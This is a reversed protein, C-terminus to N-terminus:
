ICTATVKRKQQKPTTLARELTWKELREALSAQGIGLSAAWDTLVKTVGNFTIVRNTRRNRAQEEMTAWVCNAPEYNGDNKKREISHLPPCLGMDALFNDFVKWRECVVIGRGGYNHYSPHAPWRCRNLMAQWIRYTKTGVLGHSSVRAKAVDIKYCGCSKTNGSTLAPGAVLVPNGCDCECHWVSHSSGCPSIHSAHRMVVTLRGFRQGKSFQLANHPQRGM